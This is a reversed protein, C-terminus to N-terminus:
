VAQHELSLLNTKSNTLIKMYRLVTRHGLFPEATALQLLYLLKHLQNLL